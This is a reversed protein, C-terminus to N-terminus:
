FTTGINFRFSETVDTDTMTIAESLSFNLPGVATLWDVALGISSRIKSSDNITSDYDVGWLNAADIFFLLDVNQNNQLFTPLTTSFNVAAAYNGGVFDAGDKPGIKGNEFGRLRNGSIFLRESLKVDDNTISNAGQIFFSYSTINNEYLEAYSKYSLTNTLTNNDSIIPLDLNYYTRYGDTTKFKQNRKDVDVSLTLFSDWYDGEQSKQRVSASSDTEIKEYFSRTGLGLNLKDLYEFSTGFEFGQKSSKYGFNKLRDVENAQINFYVSKDSNNYNPNTVSLIGKLREKSVTANANVSIGKGLYNNEKVGFTFTGGSTGFGAGAMIEGTPKEEVNINIIKFNPQEGDLVESRVSKFFNLSKLNNILKNKLIENYFDGEDIEM